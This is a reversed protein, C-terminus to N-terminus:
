ENVPEMDEYSLLRYDEIILTQSPYYKIGHIELDTFNLIQNGINTVVGFDTPGGCKICTSHGIAFPFVIGGIEHFDLRNIGCSCQTRHKSQSVWTYTYSHYHPEHNTSGLEIMFIIDNLCTTTSENVLRIYITEDQAINYVACSGRLVGNSDYYNGYRTLIRGENSYGCVVDSFLDMRPYFPDTDTKAIITITCNSSATLSYWKTSGAYFDHLGRQGGVTVSTTEPVVDPAEILNQKYINGLNDVNYSYFKGKMYYYEQTADFTNSNLTYPTASSILNATYEYSIKREESITGLDEAELCYYFPIVVIVPTVGNASRAGLFRKYSQLLNIVLNYNEFKNAYVQEVYSEFFYAISSTIGDFALEVVFPIDIVNGLLSFSIELADMINNYNKNLTTYENLLENYHNTLLNIYYDIYDSLVEKVEDNWIFLQKHLIPAGNSIEYLDDLLFNPSSFGHNGGYYSFEKPFYDFFEYKIPQYDAEWFCYGLQKNTMLNGLTNSIRNENCISTTFTLEYNVTDYNTQSSTNKIILIYFGAKLVTDIEYTNTDILEPCGDVRSYSSIYNSNTLSTEYCLELEAMFYGNYSNIDIYVYSDNLLKFSFYDYDDFYDYKFLSGSLRTELSDLEYYNSPQLSVSSYISNNSEYFDGHTDTYNNQPPTFYENNTMQNPSVNSIILSSLVSILFSNM